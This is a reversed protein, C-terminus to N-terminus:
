VFSINLTQIDRTISPMQILVKIDSCCMLRVVTQFWFLYGPRSRLTKMVINTEVDDGNIQM